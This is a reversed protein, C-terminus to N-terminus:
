QILFKVKSTDIAVYPIFCFFDVCQLCQVCRICFYVCNKYQAICLCNFIM